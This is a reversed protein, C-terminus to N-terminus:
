RAKRSASHRGPPIGADNCYARIDTIRGDKITFIHCVVSRYDRGDRNLTSVQEVLVDDGALETGVTETTLSTAQNIPGTLRALLEDASSFVGAVALGDL